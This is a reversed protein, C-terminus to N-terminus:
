RGFNGGQEQSHIPTQPGGRKNLHRVMLIAVHQQRERTNM